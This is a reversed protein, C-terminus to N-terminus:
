RAICSALSDAERGLGGCAACAKHFGDVRSFSCLTNYYGRRILCDCVEAQAAGDTETNQTIQPTLEEDSDYDASAKQAIAAM